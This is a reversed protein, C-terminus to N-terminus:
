KRHHRRQAGHRNKLADCTGVVRPQHEFLLHADCRDGLDQLTSDGISFRLSALALVRAAEAQDRPLGEVEPQLRELTVVGVHGPLQQVAHDPHDVEHVDEVAAAVPAKWLPSKRQSDPRVSIKPRIDPM